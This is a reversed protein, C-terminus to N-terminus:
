RNSRSMIDMRPSPSCAASYNILGPAPGEMLSKGLCVPSHESALVPKQLVKRNKNISVFDGSILIPINNPLFSLYFPYIQGKEIKM